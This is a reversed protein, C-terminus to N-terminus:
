IKSPANRSALADLWLEASDRGMSLSWAQIADRRWTFSPIPDAFRQWKAQLTKLM